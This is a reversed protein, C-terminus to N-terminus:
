DWAFLSTRGDFLRRRVPAALAEDEPNASPDWDIVGFAHGVYLDVAPYTVFVDLTGDLATELTLVIEDDHDASVYFVDCRDRMTTPLAYFRGPFISELGEVWLVLAPDLFREVIEPLTAGRGLTGYEDVPLALWDPDLEFFRALSESVPRGDAHRELVRVEPDGNWTPRCGEIGSRALEVLARGRLRLAREETGDPRTRLVIESSRTARTVDPDRIPRETHPQSGRGSETSM